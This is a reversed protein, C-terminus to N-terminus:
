YHGLGWFFEVVLQMIRKRNMLILDYMVPGHVCIPRHLIGSLIHQDYQFIVNLLQDFMLPPVDDLRVRFRELDMHTRLPEM